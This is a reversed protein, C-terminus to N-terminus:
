HLEEKRKFKEAFATAEMDIKKSQDQVVPNVDEIVM